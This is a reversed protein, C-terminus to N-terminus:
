KYLEEIEGHFRNEIAAKRPKGSRTLLGNQESLPETLMRFNIIREYVGLDNNIRALHEAAVRHISSDLPTSAPALIAILFPKNNGFVFGHAVGPIMSLKAELSAPNVNKGRNTIIIEKKRGIIRLFGSRDIEGLDGTDIWGDEQFTASNDSGSVNLYANTRRFRLRAMLTKDALVGLEVGPWAQGVTDFRDCGPVNCSLMQTESMGYGEYVPIGALAFFRRLETNSPAAGIIMVKMRDGLVQRIEPLLLPGWLRALSKTSTNPPLALLWQILQSRVGCKPLRKRIQLALQEYVSPVTILISPRLTSGHLVVRLTDAITVDYGWALGGLAYEFHVIHSFPHCIVWVDEHRLGFVQTFTDIFTEISQHDIRFAKLKTAATSGSTFAVVSLRPQLPILPEKPGEALNNMSVKPVKEYAEYAHYERSLIAVDLPLTALLLLVESDTLNEPVAVIELGGFICALAAVLWDYGAPGMIACRAGHHLSVGLTIIHNLAVIAHNRVEPFSYYILTGDENFHSVRNLRNAELLQPLEELRWAPVRLPKAPIQHAFIM